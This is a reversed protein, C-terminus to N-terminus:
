LGSGTGVAGFLTPLGDVYFLTDNPLGGIDLLAM